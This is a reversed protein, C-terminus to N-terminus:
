LSRPSNESVRSFTWATLRLVSWVAAVVFISSLMTPILGDWNFVQQSRAGVGPRASPQGILLATVPRLTHALLISYLLFAEGAACAFFLTWHKLFHSANAIPQFTSMSRAIATKVSM